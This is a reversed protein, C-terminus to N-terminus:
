RQSYPLVKYASEIYPQKLNIVEKDNGHKNAAQRSVFHFTQGRSFLLDITERKGAYISPPGCKRVGCAAGQSSSACFYLAM